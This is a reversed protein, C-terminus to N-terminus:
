KTCHAPVFEKAILGTFLTGVTKAGITQATMKLQKHTPFFWRGLQKRVAVENDRLCASVVLIALLAGCVRAVRLFGGM